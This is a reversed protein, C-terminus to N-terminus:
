KRRRRTDLMGIIAIIGVILELLLMFVAAFDFTIVGFLYLNTVTLALLLSIICVIGFDFSNM